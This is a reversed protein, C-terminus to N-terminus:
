VYVDREGAYVRNIMEQARNRINAPMEDLAESICKEGTVRTEESAYHMLYEAFTSLANVNCFSKILGPKALDMFDQGTRGMRYCGTCFSP